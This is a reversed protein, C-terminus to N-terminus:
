NFNSFSETSAEFFRQEFTPSDQERLDMTVFSKDFIDCGYKDVQADCKLNYNPIPPLTQSRNNVPKSKSVLKASEFSLILADLSKRLLDSRLLNEKTSHNDKSKSKSERINVFKSSFSDASISSGESSKYSLTPSTFKIKKSDHCSKSIQVMVDLSDYVTEFKTSPSNAPANPLSNFLLEDPVCKSDSLYREGDSINLAAIKLSLAKLM